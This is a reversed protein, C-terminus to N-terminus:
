LPIKKKNTQDDTKSEYVNYNAHGQKDVLVNIEANDLFLKNIHIKGKILEQVDIGFAIEDSKILNIQEFPAAGTLQFDNFSLTLAPFHEIISLNADSFNINGKIHENAYEKVKQTIFNPFLFPLSIIVLVIFLLGGLLWKFKKIYQLM